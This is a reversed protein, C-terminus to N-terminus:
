QKVQEDDHYALHAIWDSEPKGRFLPDLRPILRWALGGLFLIFFARRKGWQFSASLEARGIVPAGRSVSWDM